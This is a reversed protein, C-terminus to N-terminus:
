ETKASSTVFRMRKLRRRSVTSSPMSNVPRAQPLPLLQFSFSSPVISTEASCLEGYYVQKGGGLLLVHHFKPLISARPQHIVCVITKGEKALRELVEVVMLASAADLGSTPEDLFLLHPDNMLEMAICLRRREGGSIGGGEHGAVVPAGVPTDRANWLDLEKLLLEARAIKQAKTNSRPLRLM